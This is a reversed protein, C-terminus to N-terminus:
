GHIGIHKFDLTISFRDQMGAVKPSVSIHAFAYEFHYIFVMNSSM